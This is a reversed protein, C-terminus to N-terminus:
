RFLMILGGLTKARLFDEPGLVAKAYRVEDFAGLFPSPSYATLGGPLYLRGDTCPPIDCGDPLNYTGILKRDQYLKLTKPASEANYVVAIHHWKQLTIGNARVAETWSSIAGTSVTRLCTILSLRGEADNFRLLWAPNGKHFVGMLCHRRFGNSQEFLQKKMNFFLEATFSGPYALEPLRSVYLSMGKNVDVDADAQRLAAVNEVTGIEGTSYDCECVYPKWVSTSFYPAGVTTESNLTKSTRESAPTTLPKRWKNFMRYTRQNIAGYNVYATGDVSQDDFRWRGVVPNAAFDSAPAVLTLMEATNLAKGKTVRVAAVTAYPLSKTNNGGLPALIQMFSDADMYTSPKFTLGNYGGNSYTPSQYDVSIYVQSGDFILAYHRWSGNEFAKGGDGFTDQMWKRTTNNVDGKGIFLEGENHSTFGAAPQTLDDQRGSIGIFNGSHGNITAEKDITSKVPRAIVEITFPGSGVLEGFKELRLCNAVGRNDKNKYSLYLSSDLTAIRTTLSVDSYLEVLGPVDSSYYPKSLDIGDPNVSTLKLELGDGDVSTYSGYEAVEKDAHGTFVWTGAFAGTNIGVSAVVLMKAVANM